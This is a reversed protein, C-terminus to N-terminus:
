YVDNFVTQNTILSSDQLILNKNALKYEYSWIEIKDGKIVKVSHFKLFWIPWTYVASQPSTLKQLYLNRKTSDAIRKNLLNTMLDKGDAKIWKSFVQLSNESFDKKIYLDDTIKILKGNLKVAFTTTVSKPSTNKAFMSNHPFVLMDIQKNLVIAYGSIFIVAFLFFIKSEKFLRYLFINNM